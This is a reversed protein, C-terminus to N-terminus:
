VFTITTSTGTPVPTLAFEVEVAEDHVMTALPLIVVLANVPM